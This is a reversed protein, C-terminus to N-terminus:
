LRVEKDFIRSLERDSIEKELDILTLELYIDVVTKTDTESRKNEEFDTVNVVGLNDRLRPSNEKFSMKLLEEFFVKKDAFNESYRDRM